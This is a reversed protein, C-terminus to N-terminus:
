RLLQQLRTMAGVLDRGTAPEAAAFRNAPATMAGSAIAMAAAAYAPSGKPVDTFPPAVAKWRSLDTGQEASMLGLLRSVIEALTSRKVTATPQFTHNPFVDMVGAQTVQLIWSAAWSGRADIAVVTVHRPSRSLVTPLRLGIMAAVDARTITPASAVDRFSKPQADEDARSHLAERRAKWEPRPDLGFAKGYAESAENSRGAKELVAALAAWSEADSADAQTAKRAEDEAVGLDGKALDVLALERYIVAGPPAAAMAAELSARADDLRGADRARHAAEIQRQVQRFRVVDLRNRAAGDSPDVKLVAELAVIAAADDGAAIAAEARGTLAPRYRGNAKVAADFEAAATKYDHAAMAVYGLGAIAPYFAPQQQLIAGYDRRAGALDGTQLRRWAVDHREAIGPAPALGAPVVLPPFDPYEPASVVAPPPYVTCAAAAVVAAAALTARCRSTM